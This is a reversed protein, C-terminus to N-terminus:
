ERGVTLNSARGEGRWDFSLCCTGFKVVTEIGAGADDDEVEAFCGAEVDVKGEDKEDVVESEEIAEGMVVGDFGEAKGEEKGLVKPEEEEALDEVDKEEKEEEDDVVGLAFGGGWGAGVEKVAGGGAGDVGNEKPEKDAM